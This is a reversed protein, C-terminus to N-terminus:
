HSWGEWADAIDVSFDADNENYDRAVEAQSLYGLSQYSAWFFRRTGASKSKVVYAVYKEGGKGYGIIRGDRSIWAETIGRPDRLVKGRKTVIPDGSLHYVAQPEVNLTRAVQPLSLRMEPVFVGKAIDQLQSGIQNLGLGRKTATEQLQYSAIGLDLRKGFAGIRSAESRTPASGSAIASLRQSSIGTFSKVAGYDGFVERYGRVKESTTGGRKAM